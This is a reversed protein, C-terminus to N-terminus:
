GEICCLDTPVGEDRAIKRFADLMGNYLVPQGGVGQAQLRTRVL